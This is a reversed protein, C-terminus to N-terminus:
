PTDEEAQQKTNARFRVPGPGYRAQRLAPLKGLRSPVICAHHV